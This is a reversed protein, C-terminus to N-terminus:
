SAEARRKAFIRVCGQDTIQWQGSDPDCAAFGKRNLAALIQRRRKESYETWTDSYDSYGALYKLVSRQPRTLNVSRLQGARVVAIAESLSRIRTKTRLYWDELGDIDGDVADINKQLEDLKETLLKLAYDEM